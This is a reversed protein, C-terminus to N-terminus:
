LRPRAGTVLRGNAHLVSKGLGVKLDFRTDEGEGWGHVTADVPGLGVESRSGPVVADDYLLLRGSRITAQGISLTLPGGGSPAPPRRSAAGSPAAGQRTLLDDFNWAGRSSRILTVTPRDLVVSRLALRGRPRGLFGLRVLLSSAM